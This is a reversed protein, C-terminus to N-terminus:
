SALAPPPSSRAVVCSKNCSSSKNYSDLTERVSSTTNAESSVFGGPKHQPKRTPFTRPSSSSSSSGTWGNHRMRIYFLLPCGARRHILELAVPLACQEVVRHGGSSHNRGLLVHIIHNPFIIPGRCHLVCLLVHPYMGGRLLTEEVSTPTIRPHYGCSFRELHKNM